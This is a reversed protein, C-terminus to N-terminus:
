LELAKRGEGLRLPILPSPRAWLVRSTDMQFVELHIIRKAAVESSRRQRVIQIKYVM